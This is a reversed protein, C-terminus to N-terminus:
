GTPATPTFCGTSACHKAPFFIKPPLFPKTPFIRVTRFFHVYSNFFEKEAQYHQYVGPAYLICAGPRAAQCPGDPFYVTLPSLVLLFLYSLPGSPRYILDHDPNHTHYGCYEITLM